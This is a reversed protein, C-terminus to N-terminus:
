FNALCIYTFTSNYVGSPQSAAVNTIYSVTFKKLDSTIPSSVLTDGNTFRYSNPTNYNAVPSATGPGAPDTGVAPASNARLNIGFQGTGPTSPAGGLAAITNNGSTLTTGAIFVSFGGPANTAVVFQSSSKSTTTTSFEGFDIFYSTASACNLGSITVATCFTLYPPVEASVALRPVIAFVVGGDELASGSADTSSFTSIRIYYSGASSPNLISDFRYQSPSIAGPIAATRTLIFTSSTSSPDITFGTEGSHSALTAGSLDLGAPTTCATNPIPTNSCFELEISGLPQTTNTITFGILHTTTASDASDAIQVFRDPLGDAWAFPVATLLLATALTISAALATLRRPRPLYRM